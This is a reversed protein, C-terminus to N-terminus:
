GLTREGRVSGLGRSLAAYLYEDPFYNPAPHRWALALRVAASLAVLGGLALRWALAPNLAATRRSLPLATEVLRTDAAVRRGKFSDARPRM